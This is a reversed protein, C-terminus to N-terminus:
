STRGSNAHYPELLLWVRQLLALTNNEHWFPVDTRHAKLHELLEFRYAMHLLPLVFFQM